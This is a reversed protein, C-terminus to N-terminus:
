SISHAGIAEALAIWAIKTDIAGVDCAGASDTLIIIIIGLVACM